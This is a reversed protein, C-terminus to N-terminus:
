MREDMWRREWQERTMQAQDLNARNRWLRGGGAVIRPRGHELRKTADALRAELQARRRSKAFREAESAYGRVPRARPWDLDRAQGGVPAGLRAGIVNVAATLSDVHGGLGRMGLDFSDQATRTIAGAWRSSTAVTLARKRIARWEGQEKRTLAGLRIREALTARYQGGLFVGVRELQAEEVSTFHVRTRTRV